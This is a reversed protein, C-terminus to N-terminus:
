KTLATKLYQMSKMRWLRISDEIQEYDIENQLMSYYDTETSSIIRDELGFMKLLSKFRAAGREENMVVIFRKRFIISFVMGHFSNTVVYKSNAINEVWQTVPTMPKFRYLLQEIKGKPSKVGICRMPLGTKDSLSKLNTKFNDDYDLIYSAIYNDSKSKISFASRYDDASLLLTPDVVLISEVDFKEKLIKISSEERVSIADFRKLLSKVKEEIEPSANWSEKGLSPAYAIRLTDDNIFDLFLNFGFSNFVYNDRWVQDSGVIVADLKFSKFKTLVDEQTVVLDTQPQLYEKEFVGFSGHKSLEEVKRALRGQWSPIACQYEPRRNFIVADFGQQRLYEKLAFAQLVAGYNFAYHPSFLGIRM